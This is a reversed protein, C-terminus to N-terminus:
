RDAWAKLPVVSGDSVGQVRDVVEVLQSARIRRYHKLITPPSNGCYKAVLDIAVGANMADNIFRDRLGHTGFREVGLAAWDLTQLEHIITGDFRDSVPRGARPGSHFVFLPADPRSPDYLESILGADARRFPVLRDGTKTKRFRVWATRTDRTPDDHAVGEVREIHKMRLRAVERIRAGCALQLQLVSAIPHRPCRQRFHNLVRDVDDRSPMRGINVDSERARPVRPRNAPAYGLEAAWRWAATMASMTVNITRGAYPGPRLARTRTSEGADFRAQTVRSPLTPHALEQLLRRLTAETIRDLRLDGGAVVLRWAMTRANARTAPHGMREVVAGVWEAMLRRLTWASDAAQQRAEEAQQLQVVQDAGTILAIMRDRVGIQTYWGSTGKVTEGAKRIRYYHEVGDPGERTGRSMMPRARYPHVSVLLDDNRKTM